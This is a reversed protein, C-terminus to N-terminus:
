LHHRASGTELILKLNTALDNISGSKQLVYCNHQNLDHRTKRLNLGSYVILQSHELAAIKINNLCEMGQIGGLQWDMFIFDPISIQDSNILKIGSLCDFAFLYRIPLLTQSLAGRFIEHEDADDDILM